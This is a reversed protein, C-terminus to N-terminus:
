QLPQSAAMLQSLVRAPCNTTIEHIGLERCLEVDGADDVTWV